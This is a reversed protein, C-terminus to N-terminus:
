NRENKFRSSEECGCYFHWKNVSSTDLTEAVCNAVFSPQKVNSSRIWPIVTTSDSWRFTKHFHISHEKIVDGKLRNGTVAALLKLKPLKHDEVLDVQTKVMTFSVEREAKRTETVLYAVVSLADECAEGSCHLEDTVNEDCRQYWRNVEFADGANM